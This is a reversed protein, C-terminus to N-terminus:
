EIMAIDPGYAVITETKEIPAITKVSNEEIIAEKETIIKKQSESESLTVESPLNSSKTEQPITPSKTDNIEVNKDEKNPRKNNKNIYIKVEELKFHWIDTYNLM